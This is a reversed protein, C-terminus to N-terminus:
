EFGAGRDKFKMHKFFQNGSLGWSDRDIKQAAIVAESEPNKKAWYYGSLIKWRNLM